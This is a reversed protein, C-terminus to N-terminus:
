GTEGREETRGKGTEEEPHEGVWGEKIEKGKCWQRERSKRGGSQGVQKEANFREEGGGVGGEKFKKVTSSATQEFVGM